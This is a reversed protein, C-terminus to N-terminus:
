EGKDIYKDWVEKKYCPELIETVCTKFEKLNKKDVEERELWQIIWLWDFEDILNLREIDELKALSKDLRNHAYNTREMSIGNQTNYNKAKRVLISLDHRLEKINEGKM